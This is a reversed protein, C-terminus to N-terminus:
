RCGSTTRQSAESTSRQRGSAAAKLCTVSGKDMLQRSGRVGADTAANHSCDVM